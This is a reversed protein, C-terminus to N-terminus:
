RPDMPPAAALSACSQMVLTSTSSYGSSPMSATHRISTRSKGANMTTSSLPLSKKASTVAGFCGSSVIPEPGLQCRLSHHGAGWFAKPELVVRHALDRHGGIRQPTRLGLAGHLVELDGAFRQRAVQDAREREM